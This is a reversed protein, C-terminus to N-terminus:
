AQGGELKRFAIQLDFDKYVEIRDGPHFEGAEVRALLPGAVLRSFAAAVDARVAPEAMYPSCLKEWVEERVLLDIEGASLRRQLEQLLPALIQRNRAEEPDMGLGAGGQLPPAPREVLPQEARPQEGRAEPEAELPADSLEMEANKGVVVNMGPRLDGDLLKDTLPAVIEDEIARELPRAGRTRDTYTHCLYRKFEEAVEVHIGQAELRAAVRAFLKDFIEVLLDEDLPNFYVIRDVRNLFEPTFHDEIAAQLQQRYSQRQDLFGLAQRAGLNTTMIFIANRGDALHGRADTLRGADFLQLFLHQVDKHAKEIEDLLVVSYPRRRLRGTLQGEEEYGVYGPPSGILRSVQHKELYESMDLRLIADEEDFLAQALALALETKGVGTPGAFLFVGLPRREDALGARARKIVRAVEVVAEEQGKVRQKLTEELRLLRQGEDESLRTLPIGTREAVVERLVEVTVVGGVGAEPAEQLGSLSGGMTVRPGAQDLLKIAKGPLFEDHLYRVALRVAEEVVVPPYTVGHSPGLHESTVIGAIEVAEGASPEEIWVPTFRRALAPDSEVYRRYEAVTTAGICPFEGRALAPKLADAIAGLGGEAKGGLITHMEDIFVVVDGGAARVEALLKHLREELDGRYKTGALLAAPSLDVIRKRALQPVVNPDTALRYAFGEVIATKGVGADGLLVPNNAQTQQLILGMQVMAKHAGAGVAPRLQPPDARALATLDRGFAALLGRVKLAPQPEAGPGGFPATPPGEERRPEPPSPMGSLPGMEEDLDPARTGAQQAVWAPLDGPDWGAQVVLDYLLTLALCQPHQLAALLLHAHGIHGEGAWHAADRLVQVMRPTVVLSQVDAAQFRAALTKPDAPQLRDFARAGLAAVDRQERWNEDRVGVMGRLVGRFRGRSQQLEEFLDSLPRGDQKSLGMLLFEVGLWFHGIRLAEGLAIQLAQRGEDSLHALLASLPREGVRRETEAQELHDDAQELQGALGPEPQEAPPGLCTLLYSEVYPPPSFREGQACPQYSIQQNAENYELFYLHYLHSILIPHLNLHLRGDPQCLYLRHRKYRPTEAPEPDHFPDPLLGPEGTYGGFSLLTYYWGEPARDVREVYRLPCRALLDFGELFQRLAPQLVLVLRQCEMADPEHPDWKRSRYPLLKELFSRFTTEDLRQVAKKGDLEEVALRHARALPSDDSVSAGYDGALEAATRPPREQGEYHDCIQGLMRVWDDLSPRSLAALWRRLCDEQPSDSRYQALAIAALYKVIHELLDDLRRLREVDGAARNFRHCAVAIPHPFDDTFREPFSEVEEPEGPRHDPIVGLKRLAAKAQRIGDEEHALQNLTHLREDGRAFIALQERLTRANHRHQALLGQWHQIDQAQDEM